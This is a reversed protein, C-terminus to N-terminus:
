SSIVEQSESLSGRKQSLMSALHEEIMSRIEPDLNPEKLRQHLVATSEYELLRLQKGIEDEFLERSFAPQTPLKIFRRFIAIFSNRSALMNTVREILTLFQWLGLWNMGLANVLVRRFQDVPMPQKGNMYRQLTRPSFDPSTEALGLKSILMDMTVVPHKCQDCVYKSTRLFPGRPGTATRDWFRDPNPPCPDVQTWRGCEITEPATLSCAMVRIYRLNRATFKPPLTDRMRKPKRDRWDDLVEKIVWRFDELRVPEADEM